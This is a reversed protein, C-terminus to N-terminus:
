EVNFNAHMGGMYHGPLNCILSYHGATLDLTLNKAQGPDLNGIEGVNGNESAEGEHKPLLGAHAGTRLIVFEHKAKGINDVRFTIKGATMRHTDLSIAFESVEANVVHTASNKDQGDKPSSSGGGCAAALLAVVTVSLAALKGIGKMTSGREEVQELIPEVPPQTEPCLDRM